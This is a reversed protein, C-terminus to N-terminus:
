FDHLSARSQVAANLSENLRTALGLVTQQLHKWEIEKDAARFKPAVTAPVAGDEITGFDWDYHTDSIHMFPGFVTKYKGQKVVVTLQGYLKGRAHRSGGKRGAAAPTYDEEFTWVYQGIVDDRGIMRANPMFQAVWDLVAVVLVSPPVENNIIFAREMMLPHDAKRKVAPGIKQMDQALVPAALTCLLITMTLFIRM